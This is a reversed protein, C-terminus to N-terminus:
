SRYAEELVDQLKYIKKSLAADNPRMSYYLETVITIFGVADIARMKAKGHEYKCYQSASYGLEMGMETQNLRLLTRVNKMEKQVIAIQEPKM